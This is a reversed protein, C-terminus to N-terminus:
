MKWYFLGNKGLLKWGFAQSWKEISCFNENNLKKFVLIIEEYSIVKKYAEMNKLHLICM